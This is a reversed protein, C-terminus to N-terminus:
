FHFRSRAREEIIAVTSPTIGKSGLPAHFVQGNREGHYDSGGTIILRHARGLQEYKEEDERTHDAHYAEIGNLGISVLEEILDDEEYLGPHALVSVGGAAQILQVANHPTIRPVNVYAKGERGLYQDFAEKLSTVVGKEILVEAIHPRGINSKQDKKKAAVEAMTIEVGIENLRNIMLANRNHRVNRLEELKTLFQADTASVYYGLVHIDKDGWLSSIEVGPVVQIGLEKGTQIAEDWGAITDHDTIAVGALGIEKALLVLERPSRTGDSKNTHAHLDVKNQM